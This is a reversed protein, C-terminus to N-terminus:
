TIRAVRGALLTRHRQLSSHRVWATKTLGGLADPVARLLSEVGAEWAVGTAAANALATRGERDKDSAASPCVELLLRILSDSRQRSLNTMSAVLSLPNKGLIPDVQLLDGKGAQRIVVEALEFPLLHNLVVIAPVLPIEVTDPKTGYRTHPSLCRGVSPPGQGLDERLLERRKKQRCSGEGM